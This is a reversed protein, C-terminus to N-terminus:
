CSVVNMAITESDEFYEEIEYSVYFEKGNYKVEIMGGISSLFEYKNDLLFKIYQIINLKLKKTNINKKNSFNTFFLFKDNITSYRFKVRFEIPTKIQLLLLTFTKILETKPVLKSFDKPNKVM